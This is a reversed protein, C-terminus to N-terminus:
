ATFTGILAGIPAMSTILSNLLTGSTIGEEHQDPDDTESGLDWGFKTTFTGINVNFIM